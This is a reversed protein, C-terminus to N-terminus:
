AHSETQFPNRMIEEQNLFQNESVEGVEDTSLFPNSPVKNFNIDGSNLINQVSCNNISSVVNSNIENSILHQDETISSTKRDSDVGNGYSFSEVMCSQHGNTTPTNDNIYPPLKQFPMSSSSLASNKELLEAAIDSSSGNLDDKEVSAINHVINVNMIQSLNSDLSSDESDTVSTAVFYEGSVNAKTHVASPESDKLSTTVAASNEMNIMQSDSAKPFLCDDGSAVVPKIETSPSFVVNLSQSMDVNKIYQESNENFPGSGASFTQSLTINRINETSGDVTRDSLDFPQSVHTNEVYHDSNQDFLENTVRMDNEVPINHYRESLLPSPCVNAENLMSTDTVSMEVSFSCSEEGLQINESPLISMSVKLETSGVNLEKELGEINESDHAGSLKSCSVDGVPMEPTFSNNEVFGDGQPADTNECSNTLSGSKSAAGDQKKELTFYESNVSTSDDVIHSTTVTSSNKLQDSSPFNMSDTRVNDGSESVLTQVTGRDFDLLRDSTSDVKGEIEFATSPYGHTKKEGSLIVASDTHVTEKESTCSSPIGGSASFVISPDASVNESAIQDFSIKEESTVKEDCSFNQSSLTSTQDSDLSVPGESPLMLLNSDLSSNESLVIMDMSNLSENESGQISEAPHIELSASGSSPDTSQVSNLSSNGSLIEAAEGAQSDASDSQDGGSHSSAAGRGRTRSMIKELRKKREAREEEEKRLKEELEIRQREAEEKAKREQEAKLRAEEERKLKEEQEKKEQEEIAKRLKEEEQRKHEELLRLQEEEMKKQEEEENRIREEEQHRLEEQRQRELEAEREAQERALRRKEALAAKAEEESIIRKGASEPANLGNEEDAAAPPEPPGSPIKLTEEASSNVMEVSASVVATASKRTKTPLKRIPSSKPTLHKIPTKQGPKESSINKSAPSKPKNVAPVKKSTSVEKKKEPTRHMSLDKKFEINSKRDPMTGAISVPRPKRATTRARMNVPPTTSPRNSSASHESASSRPRSPSSQIEKQVSSNSSTSNAKAHDRQAEVYSRRPRALQDLRTMSVSRKSSSASPVLTRPPATRDYPITPTLDTKRRGRCASMPSIMSQSMKDDASRQSSAPAQSTRRKNRDLDSGQYVTTVDLDLNRPLSSGFAFSVNSRQANRKAEVAADRDLAKKKAKTDSKDQEAESVKKSKEDEMTKTARVISGCVAAADNSHSDPVAAVRDDREMYSLLPSNDTGDMVSVACEKGSLAGRAEEPLVKREQLPKWSPSNHQEPSGMDEDGDNRQQQCKDALPEGGHAFWYMDKSKVKSHLSDAM